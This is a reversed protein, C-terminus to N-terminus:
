ITNQHENVNLNCDSSSSKSHSIEHRASSATILFVEFNLEISWHTVVAYLKALNNILKLFGHLCLFFDDFFNRKTPYEKTVFQKFGWAAM